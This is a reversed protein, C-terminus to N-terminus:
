NISLLSNQYSTIRKMKWALSNLTQQNWSRLYSSKNSEKVKIITFSSDKPRQGNTPCFFYSSSTVKPCNQWNACANRKVAFENSFYDNKTITFSFLKEWSSYGSHFFIIMYRYIAPYISFSSYFRLKGFWLIYDKSCM